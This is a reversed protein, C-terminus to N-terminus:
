WSRSYPKSDKVRNTQRISESWRSVVYDLSIRGPGRVLLGFLMLFFYLPIEYGFKPGGPASCQCAAFGASWHVTMTAIVMVVMLPISILRTALGLVLLVVGAAETSAAMYANLLPLPYNMSTFWREIASIDRWKMLAPAYFGYALILRFLLPPLDSLFALLGVFGQYLEKLVLLM